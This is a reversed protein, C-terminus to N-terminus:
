AGSLNEPLGTEDSPERPLSLMSEHRLPQGAEAKWQRLRERYLIALVFTSIVLLSGSLLWSLYEFGPIYYQLMNPTFIIVGWIWVKPYIKRILQFGHKIANSVGMEKDIALYWSFSFAAWVASFLILVIVDILLSWPLYKAPFLKVMEEQRIDNELRSFESEMPQISNMELSASFAITFSGIIIIPLLLVIEIGLYRWFWETGAFMHAVTWPKGSAASLAMLSMGPMVWVHLLIALLNFSWYLIRHTDQDTDSWDSYVGSALGAYFLCVPTANIPNARLIQLTEFLAARLSISNAM